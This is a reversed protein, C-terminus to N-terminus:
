GCPLESGLGHGLLDVVAIHEHILCLGGDGVILVDLAYVGILQYRGGEEVGAQQIRSM